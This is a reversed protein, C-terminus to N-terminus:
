PSVVPAMHNRRQTLDTSVVELDDNLRNLPPHAADRQERLLRVTEAAEAEVRAIVDDYAAREAEAETPHISESSDYLSRVRWGCGAPLLACTTSDAMSLYLLRGDTGEVPLWEAIRPGM